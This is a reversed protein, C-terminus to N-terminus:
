FSQNNEEMYNKILYMGRENLIINQRNTQIMGHEKLDKIVRNISRVTVGLHQAFHDRPFNVSVSFNKKFDVTNVEQYLLTLLRFKLPKYVSDVYNKSTNKLKKALSKNINKIFNSDQNMLREYEYKYIMLLTSSTITSVSNTNRCELAFELDGIFDYPFLYSMFLIRGDDLMHEVKLKGSLIIYFSQPIDNQEIVLHNKKLKIIEYNVPPTILEKLATHACLLEQINLLKM